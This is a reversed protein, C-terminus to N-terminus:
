HMAPRQRRRRSRPPGTHSAQSQVYDTIVRNDAILQLWIADRYIKCSPDDAGAEYSISLGGRDFREITVSCVPQLRHNIWRQIVVRETVFRPFLWIKRGNMMPICLDLTPDRLPEARDNNAQEWEEGRRVIYAPMVEFSLLAESDTAEAGRLLDVVTFKGWPQYKVTSRRGPTVREQAFWVSEGLKSQLALM